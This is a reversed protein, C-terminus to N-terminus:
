QPVLGGEDPQPRFDAFCKGQLYDPFTYVGTIQLYCRDPFQDWGRALGIRLIVHNGKFTSTLQQGIEVPDLHLRLHLDDVYYRFTLDTVGLSYCFGVSDYFIIRYDWKNYVLKVSVRVIGRVHVTGLSRVGQGSTVFYGNDHHIDTGFIFAVNPDLIGELLQRRQNSGLVQLVQKYDPRISYDETHSPQPRPEQLDFRVQAFPRIIVQGHEYLWDEMIGNALQLRICRGEQNIGAVCVRSGSMRTLDTITLITEM